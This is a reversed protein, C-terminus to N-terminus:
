HKACGPERQDHPFRPTSPVTWTETCASTPITVSIDTFTAGGGRPRPAWSICAMPPRRWPMPVCRCRIGKPLVGDHQLRGANGDPVLHPGRDAAGSVYAGIGPITIALNQAGNSGSAPPLPYTTWGTNANYVYLTDTHGNGLASSDTVYLTKSDPTWQAANGLGGFTIPASSSTGSNFLYFVKRVQDNILVASNNPAVALVVGPVNPNQATLTNNTTSYIMLEHSSGFYLNTGTHDMIMSNPVYPLRVTSGLTGSLLEV